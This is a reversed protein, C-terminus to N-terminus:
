GYKENMWLGTCFMAPGSCRLSSSWATVTGEAAVAAMPAAAQVDAGFEGLLSSEANGAVVRGESNVVITIHM